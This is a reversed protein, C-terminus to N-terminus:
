LQVLRIFAHRWAGPFYLSKQHELTCDSADSTAAEQEYAVCLSLVCPLFFSIEWRDQPYLWINIYLISSLTLTYSM